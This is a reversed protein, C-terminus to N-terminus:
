YNRVRQAPQQAQAPAQHVTEKGHHVFEVCLSELHRLALMVEGERREDYEIHITRGKFKPLGSPAPAVLQTIPVAPQVPPRQVPAVNAAQMARAKADYAATIREQVTDFGVELSNLALFESPQLAFGYAGAQVTCEREIFAARDKKAQELALAAKEAQVHELILAQIEAATQKPKATKNLWSERVEIKLGPYGAEATLTEIAFLVQQRKEERAREEYNKVQAGLGDAIGLFREAVSKIKAEFDKIPGSVQKVAAIRSADLQKAIRRLEAMDAKTAPIHEELVVLGAYNEEVKSAWEVLADYNALEMTPPTIALALETPNKAVEVAEVDITKM